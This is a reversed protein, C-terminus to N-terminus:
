FKIDHPLMGNTLTFKAGLYSELHEQATVLPLLLRDVRSQEKKRDESVVKVKKDEQFFEASDKKSKEQPARKFFDDSIAKVDVKGVDVQTSTAIVYAQNVRRLPVGNVKYPGTVLLLGSPLQKLFIVRKGRFKGALLIVITGPKLSERLHTPNRKFQRRPLPHSVDDAEYFKPQPAVAEKQEALKSAHKKAYPARYAIARSSNRTKRVKDAM